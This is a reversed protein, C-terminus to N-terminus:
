PNGRYIRVTPTEGILGCLTALDDHLTELAEVLAADLKGPLPTFKFTQTQEDPELALDVRVRIKALPGYWVPVQLTVYEPLEGAGQIESRVIKGVSSKGRGINSEGEQGAKFNIQRLLGILDGALALNDRFLTRLTYILGRQDFQKANADQGLLWQWQPSPQITMTVKDRRDEDDLLAVIASPSYWIASSEPARLAFAVVTSLDDAKHDRKAPEAQLIAFTGDSQRVFTDKTIDIVVPSANAAKVAQEAMAAFLKDLM